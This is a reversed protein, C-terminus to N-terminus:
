VPGKAQLLKESQKQLVHRVLTDRDQETIEVFVVSMWYWEGAPQREWAVVEGLASVLTNGPQLYLLLEIFRRGDPAQDIAFALGGAGLNVEKVSPQPAGGRTELLMGFLADMKGDLADILKLLVPDVGQIEARYRRIRASFHGVEGYGGFPRYQGSAMAQRVVALEVGDLLRYELKVGDNIRFWSRREAGTPEGPENLKNDVM